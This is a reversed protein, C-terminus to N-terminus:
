EGDGSELITRLRGLAQLRRYNVASRSLHLINSIQPDSHDLFYFMLIVDRMKPSLSRLVRALDPDHITVIEGKVSFDASSLLYNGEAALAGLEKDSLDSLSIERASRASIERHISVATNRIVTVCYSDFTQEQYTYFQELQKRAFFSSCVGWTTKCM